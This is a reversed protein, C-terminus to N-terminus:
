DIRDIVHMFSGAVNGRRLGAHGLDAGLADRAAFLRGDAEGESIVSAYHFEHASLEMDWFFGRTPTLRRYGLHRKPAAFSTVLPLAGLMEHRVGEADVLGEGLVMYGGCEGYVPIGREIAAKMGAKFGNAGAIIGAHLEPYGGSLVVADCDSGPGEDELPSFFSLEAGRRRWGLLMHEYAFAFAVDRAVAIKQGPPPLRLINAPAPKTHARQALRTLKDLDIQNEMVDAADDILEALKENESAQVLGLHREPLKLKENRPLAGVVEVRANELAQRLMGEHRPSAVHNLIVGPVLVDPHFNAFGRALAAVSHSMGSCDIVLIVPLGLLGALDGASGSGDAAGDFLGMMAEIVLMRGGQSQLSANALLLDSRMAWPDYNLCAQGSAAAHFAPDIYDPGAKGPALAVGRRKLARLLGLTVTTKGSGSRPAAIMLGTM